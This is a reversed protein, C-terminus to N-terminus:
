ENLLRINDELKKKKKGLLVRWVAVLYHEVNREWTVYLEFKKALCLPSQIDQLKIDLHKPIMGSRGGGTLSM